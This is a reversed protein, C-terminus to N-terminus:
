EGDTAFWAHYTCLTVKKKGSPATPPDSALGHWVSSRHYFLEGDVTNMCVDVGVRGLYLLTLLTASNFLHGGVLVYKV